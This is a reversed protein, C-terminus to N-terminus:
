ENCQIPGLGPCTEAAGHAIQADLEAIASKPALAAPAAPGGGAPRGAAWQARARQSSLGALRAAALSPAIRRGLPMGSPHQAPVILRAPGIEDPFPPLTWM